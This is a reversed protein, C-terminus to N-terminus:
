QGTLPTTLFTFQPSSSMARGRGERGQGGMGKKKEGGKSKRGRATRRDRGKFTSVRLNWTSYRPSRESGTLEGPCLGL